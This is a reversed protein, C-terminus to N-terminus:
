LRCTSRSRSESSTRATPSVRGVLRLGLDGELDLGVQGGLVDGKALQVDIPRIQGAAQDAVAIRLQHDKALRERDTARAAAEGLGGEGDVEGGVGQGAGVLDGHREGCAALDLEGGLGAPGARQPLPAGGARPAAADLDVGILPQQHLQTGALLGAWPPGAEALADVDLVGQGMDAAPLAVAGAVEALALVQEVQPPDRHHVVEVNDGAPWVL